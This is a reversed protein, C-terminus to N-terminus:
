HGLIQTLKEQFLEKKDPHRTFYYAAAGTFIGGAPSLIVSAPIGVIFANRKAPDNVGCRKLVGDAKSHLGKLSGFKELGLDNSNLKTVTDEIEHQSTVHVTVEETNSEGGEVPIIVEKKPMELRTFDVIPVSNNTPDVGPTKM